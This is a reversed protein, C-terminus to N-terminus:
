LPCHAEAANLAATAKAWDRRATADQGLSLELGTRDLAEAAVGIKLMEAVAKKWQSDPTAPVGATARRLERAWHIGNMEFTGALDSVTHDDATAESIQSRVSEFASCENALAQEAAAQTSVVARSTAPASRQQAVAHGSACGAILAVTAALAAALASAKGNM